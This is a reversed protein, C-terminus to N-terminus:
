HLNAGTTGIQCIKIFILKEGSVVEKRKNVKEKAKEQGEDIEMDMKEDPQGIEVIEMENNEEVENDKITEESENTGNFSNNATINPLEEPPNM